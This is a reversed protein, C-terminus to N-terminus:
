KFFYEGGRLIKEFDILRRSEDRTLWGKYVISQTPTIGLPSDCSDDYLTTCLCEQM